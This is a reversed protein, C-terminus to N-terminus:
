ASVCWASAAEFGHGLAWASGGALLAGALRLAGAHPLRALRMWLWPAGLLGIASGLAFSAMVAAGQLAGDALVSVALAGWLLGCPMGVWALGILGARRVGGGGGGGGGNRRSVPGQMRVVRGVNQATADVWRPLRGQWLLMLGTILVAAELMTWVPRLVASAGSWQAVFGVSAASIAGAAAYALVRGLHWAWLARAPREGGCSRVVAACPAGCMLACHPSGALGMLLGAGILAVSV